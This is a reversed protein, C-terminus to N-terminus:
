LSFYSVGRNLAYYASAFAISNIVYGYINPNGDKHFLAPLVKLMNKRIFPLQFVFYIVALLIPVQLDSYLDDLRDDNNQRQANRRIIEENTQAAGIYDDGTEGPIFNAQIGPDTTIHSQQQPIDRSPLNLAGSAAAQQLGTVFQNMNQQKEAGPPAGGSPPAGSPAGSAPPIDADREQQLQKVANDIKVNKERAELQINGEAQNGIPLEDLSTTQSM